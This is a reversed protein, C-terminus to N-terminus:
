AVAKNGAKLLSKLDCSSDAAQEPTPSIGAAILRRAVIQDGPHNISDVAVLKGQRYNFV